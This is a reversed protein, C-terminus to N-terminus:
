AADPGIESTAEEENRPLTILEGLVVVSQASQAGHTRVSGFVPSEVVEGIPREDLEDLLPRFRDSM